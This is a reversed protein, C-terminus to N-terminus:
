LIAKNEQTVVKMFYGLSSNMKVPDSVDVDSVNKLSVEAGYISEIIKKNM